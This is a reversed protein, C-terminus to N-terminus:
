NFLNVDIMLMNHCWRRSDIVDGWSRQYQSKQFARSRDRQKVEELHNKRYNYSKRRNQESTGVYNLKYINVCDTNCIWYSERESRNHINCVELLTIECDNLNLKSSSCKINISYKQNKHKRLRYNLSKKTSGVYKLGDIDTILYIKIEM